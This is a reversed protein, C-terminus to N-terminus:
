SGPAGSFAEQLVQIQVDVRATFSDKEPCAAKEDIFKLFSENTAIEFADGLARRKPLTEVLARKMRRMQDLYKCHLAVGNLLGLDRIAAYQSDSIAAARGAFFLPVLLSLVLLTKKM